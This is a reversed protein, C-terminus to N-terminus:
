ESFEKCVQFLSSRAKWRGKAYAGGGGSGYWLRPLPGTSLRKAWRSSGLHHLSQPQEPWRPGEEECTCRWVFRHLAVHTRRRPLVPTPRSVPVFGGWGATLSLVIPQSGVGSRLLELGGRAVGDTNTWWLVYSHSDLRQWIVSNANSFWLLLEMAWLLSMTLCFYIVSSFIEDGFQYLEDWIVHFFSFIFIFMVYIVLIGIWKKPYGLGTAHDATTCCVM